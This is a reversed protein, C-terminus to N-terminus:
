AKLYGLAREVPEMGHHATLLLRQFSDTGPDFPVRAFSTAFEHFSVLDTSAQNLGHQKDDKALLAEWEDESRATWLGTRIDFPL